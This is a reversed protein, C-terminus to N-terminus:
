PQGQDTEQTVAMAVHIRTWLSKCGGWASRRETRRLASIIKAYSVSHPQVVAEHLDAVFDQWQRHNSFAPIAKVVASM